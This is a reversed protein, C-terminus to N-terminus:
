SSSSQPVTSLLRTYVWDSYGPSCYFWLGRRRYYYCLVQSLFVFGPDLLVFLPVSCGATQFPLCPRFTSWRPVCSSPRTQCVLPLLTNWQRRILLLHGPSPFCVKRWALLRSCLKVSVGMMSSRLSNVVFEEQLWRMQPKRKRAPFARTLWAIAWTSLELHTLIQRVAIDEVLCVVVSFFFVKSNVSICFTTQVIGWFKNIRGVPYIVPYKAWMGTFYQGIVIGSSCIFFRLLIIIFTWQLKLANGRLWDFGHQFM